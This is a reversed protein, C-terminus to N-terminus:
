IFFKIKEEDTIEVEFVEGIQKRLMCCIANMNKMNIPEQKRIKTITGESLYKNQRLIYSTYGKKKLEEMVDIKYKIM